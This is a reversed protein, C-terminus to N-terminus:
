NVWGSVTCSLEETEVNQWHKNDNSKLIKTIHHLLISDNLNENINECTSKKNINEQKATFNPFKECANTM